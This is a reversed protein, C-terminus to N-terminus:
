VGSCVQQMIAMADDVLCLLLADTEPIYPMATFTASASVVHVCGHLVADLTPVLVLMIMDQSLYM